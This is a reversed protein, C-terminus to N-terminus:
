LNLMDSILRWDLRLGKVNLDPRNELLLIPKRGGSSEGQLVVIREAQHLYKLVEKWTQSDWKVNRRLETWTIGEPRSTIQDYLFSSQEEYTRINAQEPRLRWSNLMLCFQEYHHTSKAIAREMDQKLIILEPMDYGEKTVVSWRRSMAYLGSLKLATEASRALYSYHLDYTNLQYQKKAMVKCKYEYETWLKSSEEDPQVYKIPCSRFKALIESVEEIFNDRQAEFVRGKFFSEPNIEVDQIDKDNFMEINIRNGTGQSYFDPKMVKYLYPTTATIFTVYVKQLEQTKHAITTRKQIIGDYLESLFELADVLYDKGATEKLLGTFEDRIITGLTHDAMYKILAEVSYKSPLILHYKNELKKSTEIMVPILYTKLPITKHGLSSPGICMYWVNLPLKGKSNSIVRDPGMVTSLM